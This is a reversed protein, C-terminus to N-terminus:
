RQRFLKIIEPLVYFALFLGIALFVFPSAGEFTSGIWALIKSTAGEPLDFLAQGSEIVTFLYPPEDDFELLFIEEKDGQCESNYCGMVMVEVYGGPLLDFDENYDLSTSALIKGYHSKIIPEYQSIRVTWYDFDPYQFEPYYELLEEFADVSIHINVPSTIETGSPTRTYSMEANANGAVVTLALVVSFILFLKKM